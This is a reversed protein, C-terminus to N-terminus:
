FDIALDAFIGSGTTTIGVRPTREARWDAYFMWGSVGGVALAGALSLLGWDRHSWDDCRADASDCSSSGRALEIVAITSLTAATGATLWKWRSFRPEPKLHIIPARDLARAALEFEFRQPESTTPEVVIDYTATVYGPMSLTLQYSGPPLTETIPSPGLERGDITARAGPPNTLIEIALPGESAGSMLRHAANIALQNLETITCVGCQEVVQREVAGGEPSLLELEITYAAGNSEVRARVFREADVLEGIQELCATSTCGILEPKDRAAALVDEHSAGRVGSDQLGRVISAELQTKLEPAADGTIDLAVLAIAGRPEQADATASPTACTMALMVLVSRRFPQKGHRNGSEGRIVLHERARRPSTM